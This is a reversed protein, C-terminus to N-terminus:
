YTDNNAEIWNGDPDQFYIQKVGDPRITPAKETGPWNTYAIKNEDLKGMLREISSVSFCLHNNKDHEKIPSNGWILHLQAHEAIKFWVRKGDKFPNDISDIGIIDHYFMTSKPLDHVSVAIHNLVPAKSEFKMAAIFLASIVFVITFLKM